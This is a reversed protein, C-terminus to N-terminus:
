VMKKAKIYLALILGTLALVGVNLLWVLTISVSSPLFITLFLTILTLVILSLLSDKAFIEIPKFKVVWNFVKLLALLLTPLLLSEILFYSSPPFRNWSSINTVKLVIYALLVTFFTFIYYRVKSNRGLFVGLLYVPLYQFLPFYHYDGSGVFLGKLWFADLFNLSYLLQGLLFIGVSFLSILLWSKSIKLLPKYGLQFLFSLLLFPILYESLLPLERFILINGIDVISLTGKNVYWSLLAIIAYSIYLFLARKLTKSWSPKKGKKLAMGGLIGSILLFTSFCAIAGWKTINDLVLDQRSLFFINVHVFSMAIVALGKVIDLSHDRKM